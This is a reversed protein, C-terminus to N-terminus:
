ADSGGRRAVAAAHLAIRYREYAVRQRRRCTMAATRELETVVQRLTDITRVFALEASAQEGLYNTWAKRVAEPADAPRHVQDGLEFLDPYCELDQVHIATMAM